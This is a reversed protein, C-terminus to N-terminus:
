LKMVRYTQTQGGAQVRLLLLGPAQGDLPLVTIPQTTPQRHMVLGALNLLELTAPQSLLAPDIRVTLSSTTPIPFVTVQNVLPEIALIPNVTIVTRALLGSSNTCANSLNTLRYVTTKVPKVDIVYPSTSTTITQVAGLADTSDRYSFTWPNNGSLTWTGSEEKSVGVAM